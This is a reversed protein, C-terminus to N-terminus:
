RRRPSSTEEKVSVGTISVDVLYYYSAMIKVIREEHLIGENATGRLNSPPLSPSSSRSHENM